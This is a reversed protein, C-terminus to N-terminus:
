GCFKLMSELQTSGDLFIYSPCGGMGLSQRSFEDIASAQKNSKCWMDFRRFAEELRNDLVRDGGFHGLSCLLVLSSAAADM